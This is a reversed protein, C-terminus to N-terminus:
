SSVQAFDINSLITSSIANTNTDLILADVGASPKITFLIKTNDSPLAACSYGFTDAPFQGALITTWTDTGPNYQLRNLLKKAL